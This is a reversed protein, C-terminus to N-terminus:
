ALNFKENWNVSLTCRLINVRRACNKTVIAVAQICLRPYQAERGQKAINTVVCYSSGFCSFAERFTCYRLICPFQVAVREMDRHFVRSMRPIKNKAVHIVILLCVSLMCSAARTPACHIKACIAKTGTVQALLFIVRYQCYFGQIWEVRYSLSVFERQLM